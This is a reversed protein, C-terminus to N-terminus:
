SAFAPCRRLRGDVGRQRGLAPVARGGRGDLRRRRARGRQSRGHGAAVSGLATEAACRARPVGSGARCWRDGRDLAGVVLLEELAASGFKRGYARAVEDPNDVFQANARLFKPSVYSSLTGGAEPPGTARIVAGFGAAGTQDWYLKGLIGTDLTSVGNHALSVEVPLTGLRDEFRVSEVAREVAIPAGVLAALLAAGLVAAAVRAASRLTPRM